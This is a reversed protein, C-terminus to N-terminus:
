PNLLIINKHLMLQVYKGAPYDHVQRLPPVQPIVPLTVSIFIM